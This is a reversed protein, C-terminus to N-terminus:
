KLIGGSIAELLASDPMIWWQGNEYILNLTIERSITRSDEAIAQEVAELLVAMVVEERYERNGDYIESIDEAQEVRQELLVRAREGLNGTVSDLDLGTIVADQAVGSDTAYCPGQLAYSLSSEYADWILAGMGSDPEADIGLGPTGYLAASVDDYEGACVADLLRVVQRRAADPPTLLRPDADLSHLALYIGAAAACVGMLGFLWSFFKNSKM